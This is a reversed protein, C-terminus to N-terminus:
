LQCSVKELYEAGKRLTEPNDKANGIMLNCPDCLLGRIAGSSHCHDVSLAKPGVGGCIACVNSQQEMLSEYQSRSIGYRYKLKTWKFSESHVTTDRHITLMCAVCSRTSAYRKTGSCRSCPKGHYFSTM